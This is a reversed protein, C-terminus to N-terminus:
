PRFVAWATDTEQVVIEKIQVETSELAPALLKTLEEHFYLAINEASTNRNAFFPLDNLYQHDLTEAVARSLTYIARAAAFVESLNGIGVNNYGGFALGAALAVM